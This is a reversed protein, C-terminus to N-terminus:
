LDRHEPFYGLYERALYDDDVNSLDPRRERVQDAYQKITLGTQPM